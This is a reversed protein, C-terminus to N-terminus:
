HSHNTLLRHSAFRPRGCACVSRLREEKPCMDPCTGVVTAYTVRELRRREAAAERQLVSDISPPPSIQEPWASPFFHPELICCCM